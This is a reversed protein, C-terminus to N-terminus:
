RSAGGRLVEAACQGLVGGVFNKGSALRKAASSYATTYAESCPGYLTCYIRRFILSNLDESEVISLLSPLSFSTPIARANRTANAPAHNRTVARPL